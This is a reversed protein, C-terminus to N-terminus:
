EEEMPFVCLATPTLLHNSVHSFCQFVECSVSDRGQAKFAATVKIREETLSILSNMSGEQQTIFDKKGFCCYTM